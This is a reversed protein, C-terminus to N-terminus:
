SQLRRFAMAWASYDSGYPVFPAFTGKGNGLGVFIEGGGMSFAIDLKHDGNFDGVLIQATPGATDTTLPAGFPAM